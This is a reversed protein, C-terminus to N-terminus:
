AAQHIPINERYNWPLWLGPNKWVQSEYLQLQTLYDIADVKHMHCTAILSMYASGYDASHCTVFFLSRKRYRIMEKLMREVENSDIPVNAKRLFLTLGLEHNLLYLLLKGLASNPEVHRENLQSRAWDFLSQMLPQSHSQHYALRQEPTYNQMKCYTDNDFVGGYIKLVQSTKEPFLSLLTRFKRFPHANCKGQDAPAEHDSNANLADAVRTPIIRSERGSMLDDFNEGAHQRGSIYLVFPKDNKVVFGTTYMGRRKPNNERNDRMLEIIRVGTDDQIILEAERALVRLHNRIAYVPGAASAVLESQTSQPIPAGQTWQMRDIGYFTLGMGYHLYALAAKAALTYKQRVDTPAQAHFLMGCLACRLVELVYQTAVFPSQGDIVIKKHPDIAYLRGRQCEPCMDGQNHQEHSCKVVEAGTYADVGLRGHGNVPPTPEDVSSSEQNPEDTVADDKVDNVAADQSSSSSTDNKPPNNSNDQDHKADTNSQDVDNRSHGFIIEQYSLLQAKMNEHALELESYKNMMVFCHNVLGETRSLADENAGLSRYYNLDSIADNYSLEM